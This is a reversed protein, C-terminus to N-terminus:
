ASKAALVHLCHMRAVYVVSQSYIFGGIGGGIAAGIYPHGLQRGLVEGAAAILGCGLLGLWTQWHRFSNRSIRAWFQNREAPSLDSLEPISKLTWDTTDWRKESSLSSNLSL